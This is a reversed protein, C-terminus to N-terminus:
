KDYMECVSPTRIEPFTCPSVQMEGLLRDRTYSAKPGLRDKGVFPMELLLESSAGYFLEEMRFGVGEAENQMRLAEKEADKAIGAIKILEDFEAKLSHNFIRRGVEGISLTAASLNDISSCKVDASRKHSLWLNCASEINKSPPRQRLISICAAEDIKNTTENFVDGQGLLKRTEEALRKQAGEYIVAGDILFQRAQCRVTAAELSETSTDVALAHRDNAFATRPYKVFSFAICLILSTRILLMHTIKIIAFFHSRALYLLLM